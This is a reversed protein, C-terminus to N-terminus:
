DTSFAIEPDLRELRSIQSMDAMGFAHSFDVYPDEVLYELFAVAGRGGNLVDAVKSSGVALNRPQLTPDIRGRKLELMHTDPNTLTRSISALGPGTDDRQSCDRNLDQPQVPPLLEPNFLPLALFVGAARALQGSVGMIQSHPDIGNSQT